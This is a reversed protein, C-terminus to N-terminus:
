LGALVRKARTSWTFCSELKTRAADGLRKRTAPEKILRSLANCWSAVDDPPVILAHVDHEVVERLTPRDSVILAKGFSMAEFLKMPSTWRGIDGKGNQLAVRRQVPILVVDFRLYYNVLESHPTFGHYVINAHDASRKWHDIDARTGGVVHFAVDPMRAAMQAVVEMGKGPYLHGVYGVTLRHEDGSLLAPPAVTSQKALGFNVPDAADHAVLIDKRHLSPYLALYDKRLADSIVVLRRFNRQRFLYSEAAYRVRDRPLVHAEYIIPTSLSPTAVLSWLHRGYLLEPPDELLRRRVSWALGLSQVLRGKVPSHLSLRFTPAVGYLAFVDLGMEETGSRAHLTVTCGNSALGSCMKLVHVSNAYPSPIESASLYAIKM